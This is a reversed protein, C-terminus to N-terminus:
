TRFATVDFAGRIAGEDYDIQENSYPTGTLAVDRYTAPIPTGVLGPFAEEITKGILPGHDIKLIRDAAANTRTLILRGDDDLRYLHAGFPAAAIVHRLSQESESLAHETSLLTSRRDEGATGHRKKATM